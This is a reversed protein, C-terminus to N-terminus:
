FTESGASADRGTLTHNKEPSLRCDARGAWSKTPCEVRGTQRSSIMTLRRKGVTLAWQKAVVAWTVLLGCFFFMLVGAVFASALSFVAVGVTIVLENDIMGAKSDFPKRLTDGAMGRARAERWAANAEREDRVERRWRLLWDAAIVFLVLSFMSLLLIYLYNM